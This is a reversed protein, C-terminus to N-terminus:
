LATGFLEGPLEGMPQGGPPVRHLHKTGTANRKQLVPIGVMEIRALLQEIVIQQHASKLHSFTIRMAEM